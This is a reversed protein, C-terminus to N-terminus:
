LKISVISKPKIEIQGKKVKHNNSNYYIIKGPFRTAYVGDYEDNFEGKIDEPNYFVKIRSPINKKPLQGELVLLNEYEELAGDKIMEEDVLDFDLADRLKACKNFLSSILSSNFAILTNPLFVATKIIPKQVELLNLYKELNKAGLTLQGVPIKEEIAYLWGQSIINKCYFGDAGSTIADFIRMTVGDATQLIGEEETTFFTDYFRCASSVLRTLIFSQAYDNTQNTIRVGAGYKKATKVQNVFDAGLVPNGTGGTTFYIKTDPFYKRATKLWLDLWGTMSDLYWHVFDLWEKKQEATELDRPQYESDQVFYFKKGRLKLIFKLIKRIPKPTKGLLLYILGKSKNETLVPFDKNKSNKYQQKAYEDGCWFGSHYHADGILFGSAPYIAEGWNGSIGLVISELIDKDYHEAVKALFRDIYKPLNPNWLSQNRSEKQHELCKYFVSEKSKKFWEPTGYDPGLILFPVWKLNHKKLKEVLIDYSSFDVKGEEKEIESWFFYSELSTIGLERAKELTEDKLLAPEPKGLFQWQQIIEAPKGM